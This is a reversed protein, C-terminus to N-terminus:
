AFASALGYIYMDYWALSFSFSFSFSLHDIPSHQQQHQFLFFSSLNRGWWVCMDDDSSPTPSQHRISSSLLSSPCALGRSGKEEV